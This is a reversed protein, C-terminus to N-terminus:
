EGYEGQMASVVGSVIDIADQQSAGLSVIKKVAKMLERPTESAHFEHDEGMIESLIERKNMQSEGMRTELTAWAEMCLWCEGAALSFYGKRSNPPEQQLM